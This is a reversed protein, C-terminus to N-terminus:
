EDTSRKGFAVEFGQFGLFRHNLSTARLAALETRSRAAAAGARSRSGMDFVILIRISTMATMYIPLALRQRSRSGAITLGISNTHYQM